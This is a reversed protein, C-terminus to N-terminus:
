SPPLEVRGAAQEPIPPIGVVKEFISWIGADFRDLTFREVFRRRGEEGMTARLAPQRILTELRDAVAKADGVPVLYGTRGEDVLDPVGGQATAVVPLGASMAELIVLPLCEQFSPFVFIDADAMVRMKEEGYKPGVYRVADGLASEAVMAEFRTLCGRDAAAGVFTAEFPVGRDRLIGLAELAVLAGKSERMNSLYLLRAPGESRAGPELARGQGWDLIGNPLVHCRDRPVFEEIDEYLRESLHVVTAGSFTWRYLRRRWGRRAAEKVGRGHLHFIIPVGLLKLVAVFLIDRYYAM